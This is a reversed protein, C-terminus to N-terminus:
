IKGSLTTVVFFCCHVSSLFPAPFFLLFLFLLETNQSAVQTYHRASCGKFCGESNYEKHVLIFSATPLFFGQSSLVFFSKGRMWVESNPCSSLVRLDSNAARNSWKICNKSVRSLSLSKREVHTCGHKLSFFHVYRQDRCCDGSLLNEDRNGIFRQVFVLSESM